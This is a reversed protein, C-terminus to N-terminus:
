AIRRDGRTVNVHVELLEDVLERYSVLARRMDETNVNKTDNLRLAVDHAARYTRVVNAHDVSLDNARREFDAMPYGRARMVDCVLRDAERISEVPDDVFLTQVRLWQTAFSDREAKSLSHIPIQEVRKQRALLEKEADSSAGYEQVAREYEPGFRSRLKKSREKRWGYWALAAAVAIAAILIVIALTSM